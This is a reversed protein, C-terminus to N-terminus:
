FLLFNSIPIIFYSSLMSHRIKTPSPLIQYQHATPDPLYTKSSYRYDKSNFKVGYVNQKGSRSQYHQLQLEMRREQKQKILSIHHTSIFLLSTPHLSRLCLLKNIPSPLLTTNSVHILKTDDFVFAYLISRLDGFLRKFMRGIKIEKKKTSPTSGM